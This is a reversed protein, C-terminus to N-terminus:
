SFYHDNAAVDSINGDVASIRGDRISLVNVVQIDLTKGNHEGTDHVEVAVTNLGFTTAQPSIHLDFRAFTDALRIVAAQGISVGSVKSHGPITWVIGPTTSALIGAHDDHVIASAFKAVIAQRQQDTLAPHTAPASVATATTATTATTAGAPITGPIAAAALIATGILTAKMPRKMFTRGEVLSM